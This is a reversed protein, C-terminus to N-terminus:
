PLIIGANRLAATIANIKTGLEKALENFQAETPNTGSSQTLTNDATAAAINTGFALTAIAPQPQFDPDQVGYNTLNGEFRLRSGAPIPTRENAGAGGYVLSVNEAGYTVGLVNSAEVVMTQLDDIWLRAGGAIFNAATYGAPYPVTISGADGSIQTAAYQDAFQLLNAM